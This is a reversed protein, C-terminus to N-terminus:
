AKSWHKKKYFVRDEAHHVLGSKQETECYNQLGELLHIKSLFFILKLYISAGNDLTVSCSPILVLSCEARLLPGSQDECNSHTDTCMCLPLM